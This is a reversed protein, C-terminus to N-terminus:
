LAPVRGQSPAVPVTVGQRELEAIAAEDYGAVEALVQRTHEGLAPPGSCGAVSDSLRVPNALMRLSDTPGHPVEVIGANDVLAPEALAHALDNVPAHPVDARALTERWEASTRTRMRDELLPVLTDRNQVRLSNTRYRPDDALEPMGIAACYRRWFVEERTAVVLHGDRTQFAQWPVQYAHETGWARPQPGGNLYILADYTHLFTMAEFMSVEVKRGVGTRQRDVLAALVGHLALMPTVLDAISIGVRAPPGEKPGTVSLLGAMAQHIIDFSPLDRQLGSSGFGTVSCCIVGPNIAALTRYDVRMRELVGPRFNDIVVDSARVLDYFARLGPELKLDLVVSRKGRNFTLFVASEEGLPAVSPNRGLDGRPHEVKIVEAGLDALILGGFTGAIVQGLEIVRVGSLPMRPPDTM